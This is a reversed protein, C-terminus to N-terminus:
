GSTKACQNRGAGNKINMNGYQVKRGEMFDSEESGSQWGSILGNMSVLVYREKVRIPCYLQLVESFVTLISSALECKYCKKFCLYYAYLFLVLTIRIISCRWGGINRYYVPM